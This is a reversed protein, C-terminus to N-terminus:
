TRKRKKSIVMKQVVCSLPKDPDTHNASNDKEKERIGFFEPNEYYFGVLQGAKTRSYLSSKFDKQEVMEFQAVGDDDVIDCVV